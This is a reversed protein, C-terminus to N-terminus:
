FNLINYENDKSNYVLLKNLLNEGYNCIIKVLENAAMLGMIGPLVGIVGNPKEEILNDDKPFLNTFSFDNKYDFIAIQGKYNSISTYIYTTKNKNCIDDILYRTQFNDCADLIYDYKSIIDEANSKDLKGKIATFKVNPNLAKLKNLAIEVKPKGIENTNFLIQRQLNSLSVIDDDIFSIEGIGAASLYLSIPCGLGGMGVILIKAKSLAIQGTETIDDLIIQRNYREKYDKNM